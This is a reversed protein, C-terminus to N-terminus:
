EKVLRQSFMRGDESRIQLFFLGNPLFHLPIKQQRSWRGSHQWLLRGQMDFIHTKYESNRLGQDGIELILYTSAPNPYVDILLSERHSNISTASDGTFPLKVLFADFSGQSTHNMPTSCSDQIGVSTSFDIGGSSNGSFYYSGIQVTGYDVVKFIPESDAETGGFQDVDLLKALSDYRAHFIDIFGTGTLTISSGISESGIEISGDFSGSVMVERVSPTDPDYRLLITGAQDFNVGGMGLGTRFEGASTYSTYFIDNEGKSSLTKTGTGPDADMNDRFTGALYLNGRFDKAAHTPIDREAGGINWAHKIMLATDGSSSDQNAFTLFAIDTDGNSSLTQQGQNAVDVTLSDQFGFILALSGNSDLSPLILPLEEFGSGGISNVQKITGNNSAFRCLVVDSGGANNLTTDTGGVNMTMSLFYMGAALVDGNWDIAISVGDEPGAGGYGVAWRYAGNEDFSNVFIDSGGFNPLTATGPGPDADVNIDTYTGICYLNGQDDTVMERANLGSTQLVFRLEGSSTYSALFYDLFSTSTLSTTGTDPDFDVTGEFSGSIYVEENPGIAMSQIKDIGTNGLM